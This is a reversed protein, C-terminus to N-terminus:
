EQKPVDELYDAQVIPKSFLRTSFDNHNEVKVVDNDNKQQQKNAAAKQQEQKQQRIASLLAEHPTSEQAIQAKQTPPATKQVQAGLQGAIRRVLASFEAVREDIDVDVHSGEFKADVGRAKIERM